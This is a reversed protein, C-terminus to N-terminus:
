SKPEEKAQKLYWRIFRYAMYVPPLFAVLAILKEVFSFLKRM